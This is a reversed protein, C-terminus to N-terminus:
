LEQTWSLLEELDIAVFAVSGTTLASRSRPMRSREQASQADKTDESPPVEKVLKGNRVVVINTGTQQALRRARKAARVLAVTVNEMDEDKPGCEEPKM